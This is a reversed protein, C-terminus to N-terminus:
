FINFPNFPLDVKLCQNIDTSKEEEEEIKIINNLSSGFNDEFFKYYTEIHANGGFIIINKHKNDCVTKYSNDVNYERFLRSILYMDMFYVQINYWFKVFDKVKKMRNYEELTFLDTTNFNINFDNNIDIDFVYTDIQKYFWNIILNKITIDTINNLQKQIKQRLKDYDYPPFTVGDPLNSFPM